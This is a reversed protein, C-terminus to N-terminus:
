AGFLEEVARAVRATSGAEDLPNRRLRHRLALPAVRKLQADTVEKVGDFAALARSERVGEVIPLPDSARAWGCDGLSLLFLTCGRILSTTTIEMSFSTGRNVPFARRTQGSPGGCAPCPAAALAYGSVFVSMGVWMASKIKM